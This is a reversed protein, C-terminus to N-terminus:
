LNTRILGLNERIDRVKFGDGMVLVPEGLEFDVMGGKLMKARLVDKLKAMLLVMEKIRRDKIELRGKIIDEVQEYAFRKSNKIVSEKIDYKIVEGEPDIEMFVSFTLRDKGEVLSCMDNSLKEPLMPIVEGPLYTSVSRAFAEEDMATGEKLFHTVDAIHVGLM